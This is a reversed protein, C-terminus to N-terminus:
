AAKKRSRTRRLRRADRVEEVMSGGKARITNTIQTQLMARDAGDHSFLLMLIRPACTEAIERVADSFEQETLPFTLM